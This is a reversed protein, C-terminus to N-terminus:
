QYIKQILLTRERNKTAESAVRPTGDATLRLCIEDVRYPNLERGMM